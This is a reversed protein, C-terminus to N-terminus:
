NKTWNYSNIVHQFIPGYHKMNKTETTQSLTYLKNDKTFFTSFSVMKLGERKLVVSLTIFLIGNDNTTKAQEIKPNNYYQNIMKINEEAIEDLSAGKSPMITINLGESFIDATDSKIDFASFTLRPDKKTTDWTSPYDITFGNKHDVYKSYYISDTNVTKDDSSKDITSTNDVTNSCSLTTVILGFIIYHRM